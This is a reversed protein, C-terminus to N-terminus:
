QEGPSVTMETLNGEHGSAIFTDMCQIVKAVNNSSIGAFLAAHDLQGVGPWGLERYLPDGYEQASTNGALCPTTQISCVTWALMVLLLIRYLVVRAAGEQSFPKLLLCSSRQMDTEEKM